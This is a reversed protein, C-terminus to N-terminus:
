VNVTTTHEKEDAPIETATIRSPLTTMEIIVEYSHYSRRSIRDHLALSDLRTRLPLYGAMEVTLEEAAVDYSLTKATLDHDVSGVYLYGTISVTNTDRNVTVGPPQDGYYEPGGENGPRPSDKSEIDLRAM